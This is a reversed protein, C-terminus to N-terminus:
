QETNRPIFTSGNSDNFSVRATELKTVTIFLAEIFMQTCPKTHVRTKIERPYIGLFAISTDHPLHIDLKIFFQEVIKWHLQVM